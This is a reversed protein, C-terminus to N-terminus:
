PLEPCFAAFQGGNAKHIRLQGVIWWGLETLKIKAISNAFARNPYKVRYWAAILGGAVMDELCSWDDHNELERSDKLLTPYKGGGVISHDLGMHAFERHLRADCRMQRNNIVGGGEVARTELYALTSWHDKGWQDMPVYDNGDAKYELWDM